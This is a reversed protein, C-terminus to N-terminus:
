TVLCTFYLLTQARADGESNEKWLANVLYYITHLVKKKPGSHGLFSFTNKAFAMRWVVCKPHDKMWVSFNIHCLFLFLVVIIMKSVNTYFYLSKNYSSSIIRQYHISSNRSGGFFFVKTLFANSMHASLIVCMWADNTQFHQTM